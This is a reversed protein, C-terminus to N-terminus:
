APPNAVLWSRVVALTAEPRELHPSHGAGAILALNANDGIADVLRRAAAAFKADDAGAVVLVPVGIASVKDWLPDQAGTGARRLSAALGSSTNTLREATFRMPDSLGSFLPQALWESTFSAVGDAEIRRAM